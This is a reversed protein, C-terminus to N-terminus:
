SVIYDRTGADRGILMRSCAEIVRDASIRRVCNEPDHERECKSCFPEDSHPVLTSVHEGLPGWRAPWLPAVGPYLGVVPAHVLAALHLMGSSSGLVGRAERFLESVGDISLGNIVHLREVSGAAEVLSAALGQNGADALVVISLDSQSKLLALAVEGYRMPDYGPIQSSGAPDIVMYGGSIGAQLLAQKAEAAGQTSIGLQPMRVQFPPDLLPTLLNVEHESAHKAGERRHDYVWRTFLGSYWTYGTGIRVDVRAILAELALKFEPNAFIMADPRYIRLVQLAKRLKSVSLVRDIEDIRNAIPAIEPRVMYAVEVDPLRSKIAVAIPLSVILGALDDTRAVLIHDLEETPTLFPM